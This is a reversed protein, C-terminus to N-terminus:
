RRFFFQAQNKLRNTLYAPCTPLSSQEGLQDDCVVDGHVIPVYGNDVLHKIRQLAGDRHLAGGNTTTTPFPSISVAPMRSSVLRSVLEVNLKRVSARCLSAGLQAEPHAGSGETLRFKKAQFHGFSGAGHVLVMRTGNRVYENKLLDVAQAMSKSDITEFRNKHTLAAGGLKILVVDSSTSRQSGSSNSKSPQLQRVNLIIMASYSALRRLAIFVVGVTGITSVTLGNQM